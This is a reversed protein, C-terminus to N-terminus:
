KKGRHMKNLEIGIITLLSGLYILRIHQPAVYIMAIFAGMNILGM